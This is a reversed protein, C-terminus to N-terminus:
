ENELADKLMKEYAAALQVVKLSAERCDTSGHVPFNTLGPAVRCYEKAQIAAVALQERAILIRGVNSYKVGNM